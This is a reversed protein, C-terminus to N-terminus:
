RLERGKGEPKMDVETTCGSELHVTVQFGNLLEKSVLGIARNMSRM